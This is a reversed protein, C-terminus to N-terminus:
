YFFVEDVFFWGKDGKGPHWNPLKSIPKGIIKVQEINNKIIPIDIGKTGNITLKTLQPASVKKFHELPKGKEKIYIDIFVPPMIYQSSVEAYSITLGNLTSPKEFNFLGVMENERFGLWNKDKFNIADGQKGDILTTEDKGSYQPNPKTHLTMSKAKINSKFFYLEKTDSALWGKKTAKTKIAGYNKLLLPQTYILSKTSDPETGDLTYRIEVNQLTHKLSITSNGELIQTQNVLIPPNLKLIESEDPVYGLEIKTKSKKLQEYQEKTFRTEWLYVEKLFKLDIIKKLEEFSIKTNALALRQLNKCNKLKEIGKGTINTQNLNLYELNGFKSIEEFIEDTVPMKSLNLSVVQEGIKSLSQLTKLDFKSSVFFNVKVAPSGNAIPKITCFPTNLETLTKESAASFNYNKVELKIASTSNLNFFYSNPKLDVLKQDYKAGELIWKKILLLEQATLQPKGKPPMHKKDELDLYARKIIHSKLTDAGVWLDGNKGGKKIKEITSMNLEGKAKQNNHCNKCKQDLIPYVFKDFVTDPVKEAKEGFLFDEGHTINGGLHGVIGIALLSIALTLNTGVKSGFIKNRFDYILYLLLSLGIGTYKHNQLTEADYGKEFSLILGAFASLVGTFALFLLLYELLIDYSLSEVKTKLSSFLLLGVALGIPIHLILPHVRGIISFWTPIQVQSEFISIFVLLVNLGFCAYSLIKKM